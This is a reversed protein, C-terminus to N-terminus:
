AAVMPMGSGTNRAIAELLAAMRDMRGLQAQQLNQGSEAIVAQVDRGTDGSSLRNGQMRTEGLFDSVYRDKARTATEQSVLGSRALMDSKGMSAAAQEAPTRTEEYLSKAAALAERNRDKWAAGQMQGQEGGTILGKTALDNIEAMTKIYKEDEGMLQKKLALAKEMDAYERKWPTEMEPTRAGEPVTAKWYEAQAEARLREAQAGADGNGRGLSLAEMRGIEDMRNNLVEVPDRLADLAQRLPDQKAFEDRAAAAAADHEGRGIKGGALLKDLSDITDRLKESDVTGRLESLLKTDPSAEREQKDIGVRYLGEEEMSISGADLLAKAAQRERDFARSPRMKDLMGSNAQELAEKDALTQAAAAAARMANEQDTFGSAAAKSSAALADTTSKLFLYAAREEDTGWYDVGTSMLGKFFGEKHINRSLQTFVSIEDAASELGGSLDGALESGALKAAKKVKMLADAGRDLRDLTDQDMAGGMADLAARGERLMKGGDAFLPILEGGAKGFLAVAAAARAAPGPLREMGAAIRELGGDGLADAPSLGMDKLAAMAKPDLKGVNVTLKGIARALTETQIGGMSAAEAYYQLAKTSAGTRISLNNLREAEEGASSVFGIASSAVNLLEGAAMTAIGLGAGMAMAGIGMKGAASTAARNLFDEVAGGAERMGRKLDRVDSTVSVNLNSDSM